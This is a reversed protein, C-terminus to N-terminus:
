FNLFWLVSISVARSVNVIIIYFCCKWKRERYSKPPKSTTSGFSSIIRGFFVANYQFRLSGSAVRPVESCQCLFFPHPLYKWFAPSGGSYWKTKGYKITFTLPFSSCGFLSLVIVVSLFSSKPWGLLYRFVVSKCVLLTSLIHFPSHSVNYINSIGHSISFMLASIPANIEEKSRLTGWKRITVYSKSITTIVTGWSSLINLPTRVWDCSSHADRLCPYTVKYGRKHLSMYTKM